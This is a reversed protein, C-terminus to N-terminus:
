NQTHKAHSNLSRFQRSEHGKAVDTQFSIHKKTDHHQCSKSIGFDILYIQNDDGKGIVMNGPKIDLHLISKHHLHEIRDVLQWGIMLETKLSFGTGRMTLLANLNAGLLDMAIYRIDLESGIYLCRPIGKVGDPTQHLWKQMNGESQLPAHTASIKEFKIAVFLNTGIERAEFGMGQSRRGLPQKVEWRGGIINNHRKSPDM